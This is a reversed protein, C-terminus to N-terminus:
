ECLVVECELVNNSFYEGTEIIDQIEEESSTFDFTFKMNAYAIM